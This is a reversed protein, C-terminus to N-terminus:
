VTEHILQSKGLGGHGTITASGNDGLLKRLVCLEKDRGMFYSSRRSRSPLILFPVSSDVMDQLCNVKRDLRRIEETRLHVNKTLPVDVVKM